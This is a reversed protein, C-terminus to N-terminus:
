RAAVPGRAWPGVATRPARGAPHAAARPSVARPSPGQGAWQGALSSEGAPPALAPGRPLLDHQL